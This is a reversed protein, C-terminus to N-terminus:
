INSHPLFYLEVMLLYTSAKFRELPFFFSTLKKGVTRKKKLIFSNRSQFLRSPM